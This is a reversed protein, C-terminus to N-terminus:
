RATDVEGTAYEYVQRIPASLRGTIDPQPNVQSIKPHYNVQSIPGLLQGTIDSSTISRHDFKITTKKKLGGASPYFYRELEGVEM